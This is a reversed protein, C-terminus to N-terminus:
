RFSDLAAQLNGQIQYAIGLNNHTWASSPELSLARKFLEIAGEPNGSQLAVLGLLRSAEAYDPAGRLVEAYAAAALELRGANHHAIAVRMVESVTPTPQTMTM